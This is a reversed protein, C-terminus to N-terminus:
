LWIIFDTIKCNNLYSDLYRRSIKLMQEDCTQALNVVFNKSNSLWGALLPGNRGFSLVARAGTSTPIKKRFIKQHPEPGIGTPWQFSNQIDQFFRRKWIKWFSAPGDLLSTWPYVFSIYFKCGFCKCHMNDVLFCQFGPSSPKQFIQFRRKKWSIWFEKQYAVSIPRFGWWFKKRFFIGVIVTALATWFKPLFPGNCAPWNLLLFFNKM